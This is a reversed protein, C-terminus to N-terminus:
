ESHTLYCLVHPKLLHYNFIREFMANCLSRNAVLGGSLIDVTPALLIITRKLGQCVARMTRVAMRVLVSIRLNLEDLIHAAPVRVGTKHHEPYLQALTTVGSGDRTQITSQTPYIAFWDLERIGFFFGFRIFLHLIRSLSPLNIDFINRFGAQYTFRFIFTIELVCKNIFVATEPDQLRVPLM